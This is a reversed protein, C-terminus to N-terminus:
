CCRHGSPAFTVQAHLCNRLVHPCCCTSQGQGQDRTVIIDGLCNGFPYQLVHSGLDLAQGCRNVLERRFHRTFRLCLEVRLSRKPLIGDRCQSMATKCVLLYPLLITLHLFEAPLTHGVYTCTGSGVEAVRVAVSRCFVPLM